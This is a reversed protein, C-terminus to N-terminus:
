QGVYIKNNAAVVIVKQLYGKEATTFSWESSATEGTAGVATVTWYYTTNGSLATTLDYYTNSTAQADLVQTGGSTTGLDIKYSVTDETGGTGESWSLRLGNTQVWTQGDSPTPTTPAAPAISIYGMGRWTTQDEVDALQTALYFTTFDRLSYLYSM